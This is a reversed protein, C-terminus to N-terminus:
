REPMGAKRLGSKFQQDFQAFATNDDPMYNWQAISRSRTNELTLYQALSARSEADHGTLALESTLATLIIPTTPSAAAARRLWALSEDDRGMTFYAWGKMLFFISIQPDRPSLSTGREAYEIM